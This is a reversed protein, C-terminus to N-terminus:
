KILHWIIRARKHPMATSAKVVPIATIEYLLASFRLDM